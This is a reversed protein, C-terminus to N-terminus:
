AKVEGVNEYNEMFFPTLDKIDLLQPLMVVEDIVKVKAFVNYSFQVITDKDTLVVRGADVLTQLHETLANMEKDIKLAEDKLSNYANIAKNLALMNFAM